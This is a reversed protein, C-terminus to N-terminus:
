SRHHSPVDHASCIDQHSRHNSVVAGHVNRILLSRSPKTSCRWRQATEDYGCMSLPIYMCKRPRGHIDDYLVIYSYLRRISPANM